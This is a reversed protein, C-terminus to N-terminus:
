LFTRLAAKSEPLDIPIKTSRWPGLIRRAFNLSPGTWRAFPAVKLIVISSTSPSTLMQPVVKLPKGSSTLIPSKRSISSPFTRRRAVSTELVVTVVSTSIAPSTEFLLPMLKGPTATFTGAKDSFSSSSRRQASLTPTSMIASENTLFAESM